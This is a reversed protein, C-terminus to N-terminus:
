ERGQKKWWGKWAEPDPGLDDGALAKLAARAARSVDPEPDKLLGAVDPVLNKCDKMAAALAAARRVEADDDLVYKRLTDPTMRTLRLALADRAAKRADGSLRPIAAALADTYEGGKGDRLKGLVDDRREAPAQVLERALRAGPSEDPPPDKQRVLEPPDKPKDPPKAKDADAGKDSLAGTLKDVDGGGAKLTVGTLKGKLNATLDRALNAKRLFLLAFCTDIEAQHGGEWTGDPRQNAVLIEAGWAYWDHGGITDLDLAVAVRELSWLFYYAKGSAGPVAAPLGRAKKKAVPDDIATALAALGAQLAADKAPDPAKGKADKQQAADEAAGHAVALGLLGACTMAASPGMMAMAGGPMYAWGGKPSQSSRYRQDIRLLANDVPLGHRRAVWLALTAFQTNSNDGAAQVGDGAPPAMRNILALQDQIEKPLDKVTRRSEKADKDTKADKDDKPGSRGVLESRKNLQGTLRRVEAESINPCHYTWGGAANQGALLRVTMSEILPVDAADGLRDLFLIGLSLSYTETMGPSAQRVVDAARLVAKDDAAAGCELLTLGGLATAGVELNTFSGDPNQMRRLAAVGHDISKNIADQQDDARVDAALLTLAAALLGASLTRRM